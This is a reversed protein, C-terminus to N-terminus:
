TVTKIYVSHVQVLTIFAIYSSLTTSVIQSNTLTFINVLSIVNVLTQLGMDLNTVVLNNITLNSNDRLFFYLGNENSNGTTQISDIEFGNITVSGTWEFGIM